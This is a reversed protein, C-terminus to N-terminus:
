MPSLLEKYNRINKQYQREASFIFLYVDIEHFLKTLLFISQFFSYTSFSVFMTRYKHSMFLLTLLRISFNLNMIDCLALHLKFYHFGLTFLALQLVSKSKLLSLAYKPLFFFIKYVFGCLNYTNFLM